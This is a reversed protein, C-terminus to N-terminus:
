RNEDKLTKSGCILTLYCIMTVIFTVFSLISLTSFNNLLIQVLNIDFFLQKNYYAYPLYVNTLFILSFIIYLLILKKSKILLSGILFFVFFPFLYREHIRTLLMFFSMISLAATLYVFPEEFRKKLPKLFFIPIYSVVLLIIGLYLFPIGLFTRLDNQWNGFLGWFNFAFCTTCNFLGTSAANTYILGYFPNKPFFPLYILIITLLLVLLSSLWRPPKTKFLFFLVLLPAFAITQPKLAWSTTAFIISAEPFKRVLLFYASLLLFFAAVGDYQGFVASDFIIAPNFAYLVFGLLAWRENLKRKIILYILAASALDAINAPLKLLLDYHQNNQFFFSHSLLNTKILGIAWLIYLFGVPNNTFVEKSYFQAPGLEALRISWFRFANQDYEFAPLFSLMTRVTFALCLLNLLKKKIFHKM